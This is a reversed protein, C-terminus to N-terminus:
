NESPFLQQMLGKKHTKLADLKESQAAILADLLSLCDAIKQQEFKDTPFKIPLDRLDSGYIRTITTSNLRGWDVNLLIAHLLDNSIQLIPNDIWVINSDQYYADEGDYRLCKGVTGSCTILIEGKRPFNYKSKYEEFLKKDIFADPKGGLTGIKFFPVGGRDNTQEAFIRKCMLVVGLQGLPIEEWEGTDRFEPFRLRPTTEGDRPFLRQMLGKKHTKLADLKESQAAILGDLSSLFDAIKQQENPEPVEVMIASLDSSNIAPYNSGTCKELVRGVFRDNHLYQFLYKNSEHARLQAYGTSAVYDIDDDPLFFYNNKQYPRVTQFIVDGRKLLRQARSPAGERSIIRKQFLKGEEVSELDIYVFAEPLSCVSPNVECVQSLKKANWAGADRFEPFRLRPVLFKSNHLSFPEGALTAQSKNKSKQSM